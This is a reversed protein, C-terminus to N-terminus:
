SKTAYIMSDTSSDTLMRDILEGYNCHVAGQRLRLAFDTVTKDRKEQVIQRFKISEAYKNKIQDFHSVLM